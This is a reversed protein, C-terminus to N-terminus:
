TIGVSDALPWKASLLEQVREMPLGVVNSFSGEIREVFPDDRDQIGYAGAKGEWSNSDLYHRLESDSLKRMWVTTAVCDVIAQRCRISADTDDARDSKSGPFVLAIGTITSHKTGQLQRLIREADDRDHPKGIVSDGLCCATDAGLVFGTEVHAVDTAKLWALHTVYATPSHFGTPPPEVISSPVVRIRIGAEQLLQMRRPSSSALVLENM